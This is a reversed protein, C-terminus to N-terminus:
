TKKGYVILKILTHTAVPLYKLAEDIKEEDLLRRVLSASIVVEGQKSRNIIILKDGLVRKLTDNYIIMLPDTETGVYRTGIALKPMFYNKFILADILASEKSHEDLKKFFYNPFAERAIIYNTSPIVMVNQYPRSAAYVLSFREIFTFLSKEAELIFVLVLDNEKSADEILQLHGNTVPNANMIISGIRKSFIDDGYELVIQRKLNDITQNIEPGGGELMVTKDTKVLTHFGLSLFLEEYIRKTFVQYYFQNELRMIEIIKAILKSAISENQYSPNVALCKIVHNNKSITGIIQNEEEFYITTDASFDFTLDFKELFLRIKEKEQHLIATKYEM